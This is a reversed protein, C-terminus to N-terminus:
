TLCLFEEGRSKLEAPSGSEVIRGDRVVLIQDARELVTLRHAIAVITTGTELLGQLIEEELAPDLASTAEDLVLLRPKKALARALVIRQRQGGSLGHGGPGVLTDYGMPLAEIEDHVRALSVAAVLDDHSVDDAGFAINERISGGFLHANQNVYGIQRRYTPRDLASLDTGDVTLTGSTPLHLGALLMGLTSKGSGSRGVVVVFTGPTIRLDVDTLSPTRAGRYRFSVREATIRGPEAVGTGALAGRPEQATHLVDDLRALTPRVMALQSAANFMGELPAFLAITLAMFGLTAGLSDHGDLVRWIGVLVVVVPASFQVTRSLSTAVALSRRATLRKNVEGALTHSWREVARGELGAAKLTTMSELMELLEDQAKTQRELVEQSLRGQRRWTVTLIAAQLAILLVVLGALVPNAAVIVALYVAILVSDFVASVATLSLVQNLTSSTRVRMALDGSNHVTFYEYPLSTLHEAVGWTLQKEVVAQRKTVLFSRLVQLTLFLLCLLGLGATTLWLSGTLRNPLVHEVLNSITLPLAFEFGMLATSVVALQRLERGRPLFHALQRWPRPTNDARGGKSADEPRTLPATFELAVGTFSEAATARSLRRRGSAPDIVDVHHETASELVVFHNFNWFLITGPALQRLGDLDTRVGRGTLGYGRGIELLTRASAGNRGSDAQARVAELDAEVGHHRLTMVLCAPGCDSIETQYCVPVRPGGRRRLADLMSRARERPTHPLHAAHTHGFVPGLGDRRHHHDLAEARFRPRSTM